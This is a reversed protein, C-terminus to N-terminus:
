KARLDQHSDAFVRLLHEPIVPLLDEVPIGSHGQRAVCHGLIEGFSYQPPVDKKTKNKKGEENMDQTMCSNNDSNVPQHMLIVQLSLNVQLNIGQKALARGPDNMDLRLM